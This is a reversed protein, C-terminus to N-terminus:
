GQRGLMATVSAVGLALIVRAVARKLVAAREAPWCGCWLLAGDESGVHGLGLGCAEVGEARCRMVAHGCRCGRCGPRGLAVTAFARAGGLVAAGAGRALADPPWGVAEILLPRDMRALVERRDRFRWTPWGDRGDRRPGAGGDRVDPGDGGAALDVRTRRALDRGTSCSRRRRCGTWGGGAGVSLDVTVEARRHGSAYAREATQTAATARLGEGLTLALELRDGGTLGGATNLFVAEPPVGHVRPLFAKACGAQALREVGGSVWCWM